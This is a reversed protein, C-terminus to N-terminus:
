AAMVGRGPLQPLLNLQADALRYQAVRCPEGDRNPVTIPTSVIDHGENRLDHVRASARAIGLDRWIEAATMPRQKLAALLRENQRSHSM